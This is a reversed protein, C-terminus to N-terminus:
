NEESGMKVDFEELLLLLDKRIIRAMKGHQMSVTEVKLRYQQFSFAADKHCLRM